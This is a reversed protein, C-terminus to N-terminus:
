RASVTLARAPRVTRPARTHADRLLDELAARTREGPDVVSLWGRYVPHPGITDTDSPDAGALTWERVQAADAAVNVRFTAASRDLRSSTDGPYDKTVITAFPQGRPIVGDPAYYFFTDGWAIEPSGDGECPQLVLVGGLSAVFGIIEDKTMAELTVNFHM